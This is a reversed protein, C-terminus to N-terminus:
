LVVRLVHVNIYVLYFVEVGEGGEREREGEREMKGRREERKGTCM